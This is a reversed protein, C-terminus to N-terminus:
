DEEEEHEEEVKRITRALSRRDIPHTMLTTFVLLHLQQELTPLGDTPESGDCCRTDAPGRGTKPAM